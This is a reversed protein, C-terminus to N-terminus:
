TLLSIYNKPVIGRKDGVVGLIWEDDVSEVHTLIDGVKLTLEDENEATFDFLAKAKSESHQETIPQAKTPQTFAAPYLGERDEVRGRRWETNIHALVRILAGKQFSLDEATQGPFDFVAVAWEEPTSKHFEDTNVASDETHEPKITEVPTTKDTEGTPSATPLPETTQTFNLPFIGIRGHLQGRGWDRDDGIVDLLAIVDGRSFTLEDDEVASYDFLAVCRPGSITTPELDKKLDVSELPFINQTQSLEELAPKTQEQDPELDLDLLCVTSDSVPVGLSSNGSQSNTESPAPSPDDMVILVEQKVCSNYLPHGPKPRPPLPPGKKTARQGQTQNTSVSAESLLSPSSPSKILSPPTSSNSNVSPPPPRGPLCKIPPPRLPLLKVGTPRPPLSPEVSSQVSTSKRLAPRPPETPRTPVPCSDPSPVLNSVLNPASSRRSAVLTPKSPVSPRPSGVKMQEFKYSLVM